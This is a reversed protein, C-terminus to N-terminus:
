LQKLSSRLKPLPIQNTRIKPVLIPTGMNVPGRGLIALTRFELYSYFKDLSELMLLACM